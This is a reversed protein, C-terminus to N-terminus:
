EAGTFLVAALALSLLFFIKVCYRRRLWHGSLSKLIIEAFHEKSSGRGFNSFPKEGSVLTAVLSSFICFYTPFGESVSGILDWIGDM